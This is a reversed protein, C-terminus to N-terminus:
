KVSATDFREAWDKPLERSTWFFALAGAIGFISASSLAIKFAELPDRTLALHDSLIGVWLPGVGYGVLNMVLLFVAVALARSSVPALTQVVAYSPGMAFGTCFSVFGFGLFGLVSNPIFFLFSCFAGALLLAIGPVLAYFAVSRSALRDSAIGGIVVGSATGLITALALAQTISSYPLDFVRRYYDVIWLGIGSSFFALLTIAIIIGIYSKIQALKRLSQAIGRRELLEEAKYENVTDSAGRAPEKVTLKVIVALLLGPLGVVAFAVRWGYEALVYGGILFALAQGLPIGASYIGFM